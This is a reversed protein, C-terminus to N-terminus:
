CPPSSPIQLEQEIAKQLWFEADEMMGPSLRVMLVCFESENLAGDGDLDGERVMEEAENLTMGRMGLMNSNKKLSEATIIGREPDALLNFGRCLETVFGNVDLKEVMVPMLDEYEETDTVEKGHEDGM